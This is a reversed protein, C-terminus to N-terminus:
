RVWLGVALGLGFVLHVAATQLLVPVLERGSANGAARLPRLALPVAALALLATVPLVGSLVGAVPTALGCVMAARYLVRTRSEGMRVALTRKGAAVDTPIDRLNNVLLIAVAVLGVAPAAWWARGTVRGAQVYTSGWTAVLGFFVFVSAEGLGASAYPRPGGSYLVAGAVCAVGVGLLWWGAVRALLFGAAGAVAIAVMGAIAVARASALGSAVLRVPGARAATDIGRKGDEYDNLYNVGAQLGLAVVLAGLFRWPSVAGATRAAATGVLVPVVSAGLTRPRAGRWWLALGPSTAPGTAM